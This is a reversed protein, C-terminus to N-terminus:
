LYDAFKERYKIHLYAGIIYIVLLLALNYIILKWHDSFFWKHYLISYRYGEVIFYIPNLKIVNLVIQNTPLYLISSVFFIIRMSAQIVMQTDRIIIGLTSTLLSIVMTFILTYPVFILLQITYMTPLYGGIACLLMIIFLLMLHAYFKSVVLYSPLISLPFNMKAVQNYKTTIAKTGELIGQNIFFWMCIGVILWYIFPTGEIIRNSRFGLGFVFWYIMIQITPNILEWAVGLYNNKNTIKIQFEALRRILYINIIHEKLIIWPANM